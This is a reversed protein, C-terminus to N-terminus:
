VTTFSAWTEIIGLDSRSMWTTITKCHRHWIHLIMRVIPRTQQDAKKPTHDPILKSVTPIPLQLLNCSERFCFPQDCKVKMSAHDSYIAFNIHRDLVRSQLLRSAMEQLRITLIDIHGNEHDYGPCLCPNSILQSTSYAMVSKIWKTKRTAVKWAQVESTAIRVWATDVIAPGGSFASRLTPTTPARHPSTWRRRSSGAIPLGVWPVENRMCRRPTHPLPGSVICHRHWIHFIM